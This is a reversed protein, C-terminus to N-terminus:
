IIGILQKGPPLVEGIEVAPVNDSTLAYLLAAADTRALSLLLGGATQPEFLISRTEALVSEDNPTVALRQRQGPAKGLTVQPRAQKTLRKLANM